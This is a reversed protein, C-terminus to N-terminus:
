HPRGNCDIQTIISREEQLSLFELTLINMRQNADQYPGFEITRGTFAHSCLYLKLYWSEEDPLYPLANSSDGLRAFQRYLVITHASKLKLNVVRAQQAVGLRNLYGVFAASNDYVAEYIADNYRGKMLITALSLQAADMREKVWEAMKEPSGHGPKAKPEFMVWNMFYGLLTAHRNNKNLLPGWSAVVSNVGLYNQDVINSVDIRDFLINRPIAANMYVGQRIGTAVVKTDDCLMHFSIQFRQIRDAFTRFEDTLYFYLSRFLDARHVGHAKGAALVTPMFVRQFETQAQEFDYKSSLFALFGVTTMKEEFSVSLSAKSGLKIAFAPKKLEEVVSLALSLIATQHSAQVFASYWLHLALEAAKATDPERGLILLILLNRITVTADRDNLLVTLQGTYDLPIQNVTHILDRLDGSAVNIPHEALAHYICSPISPGRKHSPWHQKQCTESCYSVLHCVSCHFVIANPCTWSKAVNYNACPLRQLPNIGGAPDNGLTLGNLAPNPVANLGIAAVTSVVAVAAGVVACITAQEKRSPDFDFSPHEYIQEFSRRM